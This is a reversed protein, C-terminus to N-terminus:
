YYFIIFVNNCCVCVCVCVCVCSREKCGHDYFDLHLGFFFNLKLFFANDCCVCVCVSSLWLFTVGQTASDPLDNKHISSDIVFAAFRIQKM